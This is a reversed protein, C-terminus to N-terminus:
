SRFLESNPIKPGYELGLGAKRWYFKDSFQYCGVPGEGRVGEM